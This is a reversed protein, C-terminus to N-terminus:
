YVVERILKFCSPPINHLIYFGTERLNVDSYLKSICSGSIEYICYGDDYYERLNKNKNKDLENNDDKLSKAFMEVTNLSDSVYVREPHNSIRCNNRPAFGHKLIKHKYKLPSAHYLTKPINSVENDFKAEIIVATPKSNNNYEQTWHEGEFDFSVMSIFYGLNTFLPIYNKLEDMVTEKGHVCIEGDSMIDVELEPFRDLIIDKSKSQPYTRILGEMIVLKGNYMQSKFGDYMLDDDKKSLNKIHDIYQFYNLIFQTRNGM